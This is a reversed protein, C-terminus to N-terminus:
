GASAPEPCAARLHVEFRAGGGAPSRVSVRGGHADVIRQVIALGLGSGTAKTTHFPLFLRALEEDAIGPGDDAVAFTAGDPDQVCSVRVSGGAPGVAQAANRLLNWAVQRIQGPDCEVPAHRLTRELRVCAADPDNAFVDLTEGLLDALDTRERRLPPPRAFRLFETVLENLRAAERLAIDLLRREGEPVQDRLLEISGSLSALPNRLEHALGAAVRGLDALRESRQVTEEMARLQTLDQFIVATGISGGARGSLPFSSYGLRLLEGDANTLEIEDRAVNDRFMPFVEGVPRGRARDLTVGTMQEGARNLFSVQGRPDITLLGGTMSQVISEHLATINALDSESAALREGTDRLQGALYAALVSTAAFAGVHVFVRVLSPQESGTGVLLLYVATSLAAGFLAGARYLLIAGNVAALSFLFLFVSESRGTLAVLGAAVGVDFAIQAYATPVLGVRSRLATALGICAVYAVVVLVYLPAYAQYEDARAGWSVMVTGGLLVTIMVTRFLTLWVLKRYLGPDREQTRM